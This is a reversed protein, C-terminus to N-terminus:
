GLGSGVLVLTIGLSAGSDIGETGAQYATVLASWQLPKLEGKPPKKSASEGLGARAVARGTPTLKISM